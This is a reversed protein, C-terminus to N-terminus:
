ITNVVHYPVLPEDDWAEYYRIAYPLLEAEIPKDDNVGAPVISTRIKKLLNKADLRLHKKGRYLIEGDVMVTDVDRARGRYLLAHIPNQNLSLYPYSLSRSDLLVIDARKGPELSGALEGWGLVHSGNVTAMRFIKDLPVTAASIGPARQLNASLRMEQLMDMDDNLTSSDLGLALPIGSSDIRALPAIGSKLRLNSSPNHVVASGRRAILDIDRESLWVGHALSVRRSLFDLEDLWEVASKGYTRYFYTRQYKTELVHIQIGLHREESIRRINQLLDATCWQPGAPTLFIQIRGDPNNKVDETLQKVLRVYNDSDATRPQSIKARAREKLSEPLTALFEDDGYVVHNRDRIDLGFSVRIGAEDYARIRERVDNEYQAPGRSSNYHLCTTVGAEIMRLAAYLTDLYPSIKAQPAAKVRTMELPEDLGGLQFNTLGKGHQHANVFGPMVWFHPSGIVTATPYQAKLDKYHGVEIINKGSVYVAGDKIIGHLGFREQMTLVFRGRILYEV